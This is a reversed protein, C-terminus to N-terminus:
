SISVQLLPNQKNQSKKINDTITATQNQNLFVLKIIAKQQKIKM